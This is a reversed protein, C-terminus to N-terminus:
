KVYPKIDKINVLEVTPFETETSQLYRSSYSGEYLGGTNLWNPHNITEPSLYLDFTGDSNLAVEEMTRFCNVEPYSPTNYWRDYFVYSAYLTNKPLKGHIKMAQGEKLSVWCGEYKNDKTPYLAGGYKPARVQSNKSPYQNLATERLLSALDITGMIFETMMDNARALREQYTPGPKKNDDVRMINLKSPVNGVRKNFYQRVLFAHDGDTMEIWNIAGKPKEKSIYLEFSGDKNVKMDKLNINNTAINFGQAYGYLQVGLYIFSGKTGTLKYAYDTSIPIQSYITHPNDGGFKRPPTMWDTIMPEAPNGREVYAQMALSYASVLFFAARDHEVASLPASISDVPVTMKTFTADAKNLMAVVPNSKMNMAGDHKKQNNVCAVSLLAAGVTLVYSLNKM